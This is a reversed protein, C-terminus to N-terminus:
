SAAGAGGAGSVAGDGDRNTGLWALVTSLDAMAQKPDGDPAPYSTIIQAAWEVRSYTLLPAHLVIPAAINEGLMRLSVAAQGLRGRLQSGIPLSIAQAECQMAWDRFIRALDPPVSPTTIYAFM